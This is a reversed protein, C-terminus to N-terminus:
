PRSQPPNSHTEKSYTKLYSEIVPFHFIIYGAHLCYKFLVVALTLRHVRLTAPCRRVDEGKRVSAHGAARAATIVPRLTHTHTCERTWACAVPDAGSSHFSPVAACCCVLRSSAWVHRWSKSAWPFAAIPATILIKQMSRCTEEHDVPVVEYLWYTVFGLIM